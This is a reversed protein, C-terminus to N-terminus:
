NHKLKIWDNIPKDVLERVAQIMNNKFTIYM